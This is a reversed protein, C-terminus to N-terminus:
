SVKVKPQEGTVQEITVTWEVSPSILGHRRACDLAEAFTPTTWGLIGFSAAGPYIEHGHMSKRKIVEYHKLNKDDSDTVEYIYFKDGSYVQKFGFGRVEGRGVFEKRLLKM